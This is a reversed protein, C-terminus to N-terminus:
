KANSGPDGVFVRQRCQKLQREHPLSVDFIQLTM